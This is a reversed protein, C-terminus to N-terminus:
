EHFFQVNNKRIGEELLGSRIESLLKLKRKNLIINRIKEYELDLPSISNKLKYDFIYVIWTFQSGELEVQKNNKLFEEINLTKIPVLRLFEDYYMWVLDIQCNSAFQYCYDELTKLDEPDDSAIVKRVKKIKPAEKDVKVWRAQIIYDKLEFNSKNESYYQEIEEDSVQTNMKQEILAQEYTYIILNNKYERLQKEFNKQEESLNLEARHIMLQTEVWNQIYNKVLSVSDLSDAGPPVVNKIDPAYLYNDFVRAIPKAAPQKKDLAREVYDCAVFLYACFLGILIFTPQLM